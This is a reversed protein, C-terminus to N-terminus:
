VLAQKPADEVKDEVKFDEERPLAAADLAHALKNSAKTYFYQAFTVTALSALPTVTLRIIFGTAGAKSAILPVIFSEFAKRAENLANYMDMMELSMASIVAQWGHSAMHWLYTGTEWGHESYGLAQLM